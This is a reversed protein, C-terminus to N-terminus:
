EVKEGWFRVVCEPTKIYTPTREVQKNAYVQTIIRQRREVKVACINNVTTDQGQNWLQARVSKNVITDIHENIHCFHPVHCLNNLIRGCSQDFESYASVNSGDGVRGKLWFVSFRARSINSSLFKRSSRGM